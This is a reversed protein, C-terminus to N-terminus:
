EDNSAAKYAKTGLYVLGYTIGALLAVQAVVAVAAVVGVTAASPEDAGVNGPGGVGCNEPLMKPGFFGPGQQPRFPTWPPATRVLGPPYPRDPWYGTPIADRMAYQAYYWRMDQPTLPTGPAGTRGDGPNRPPPAGGGPPRHPTPINGSGGSRPPPPYRGHDGSGPPCGRGDAYISCMWPRNFADIPYCEPYTRCEKLLFPKCAYPGAKRTLM